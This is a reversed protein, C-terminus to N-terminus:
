FHWGEGGDVLQVTLYIVWRQIWMWSVCRAQDCLRGLVTSKRGTCIGRSTAMRSTCERAYIRSWKRAHQSTIIRELSNTKVLFAAQTQFLFVAFFFTGKWMCKLSSVLFAEERPFSREMIQLTSDYFFMKEVLLLFWVSDIWTIYNALWDHCNRECHLRTLPSSSWCFWEGERGQAVQLDSNRTATCLM